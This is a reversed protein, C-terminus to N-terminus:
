THDEMQRLLAQVKPSSMVPALANKAGAMDGASARALATELAGGGSTQLLELLQRGAPSQALRMLYAMDFNEM